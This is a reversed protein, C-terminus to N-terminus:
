QAEQEDGIPIEGYKDAHRAENPLEDFEEKSYETPPNYFESNWFKEKLPQAHEQPDSCQWLRTTGDHYRATPPTSGDVVIFQYQGVVCRMGLAELPTPEGEPFVMTQDHYVKASLYQCDAMGNNVATVVAVLEPCPRDFENVIVCDGRQLKSM